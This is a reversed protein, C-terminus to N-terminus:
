VIYIIAYLQGGQLGMQQPACQAFGGDADNMKTQAIKMTRMLGDIGLLGHQRSAAVPPDAAHRHQILRRHLLHHALLVIQVTHQGTVAVALLHLHDLRDALHQDRGALLGCALAAAAIGGDAANAGAAVLSGVLAISGNRLYNKM